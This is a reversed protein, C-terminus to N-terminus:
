RPVGSAERGLSAHRDTVRADWQEYTEGPLQALYATRPCDALLPMVWYSRTAIKRSKLRPSDRTDREIWNVSAASFDARTLTRGLRSELCGICLFSAPRGDTAAEWVHKHVMYYECLGSAVTPPPLRPM